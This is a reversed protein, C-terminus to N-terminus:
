RFSSRRPFGQGFRVSTEFVEDRGVARLASILESARGLAAGMGEPLKMDILTALNFRLEELSDVGLAMAMRRESGFANILLPMNSGEVNEFLLAKNATAPGKSVRDTIESIELDCSVSVTVRVLEGAVELRQIFESLDRYAM